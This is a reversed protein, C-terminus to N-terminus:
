QRAERKSKNTLPTPDASPDLFLLKQLRDGRHGGPLRTLRVASMAAPDAGLRVLGPKVRELADQYEQKTRAEWRLLVHISQGASSYIAVAPLPLQAMARIWLLADAKDSEVVMHRFDTLNGESRISWNGDANRKAVGDTPNSLYFVGEESRLRNVWGARSGIEYVRGCDTRGTFVAVKEGLRFVADLFDSSTVNAPDVPSRDSVDALELDGGSRALSVLDGPSFSARTVSTAMAGSGAAESRAYAYARTQNRQLDRPVVKGGAARVRREVEAMAQDKNIGLSRARLFADFTQDQKTKGDAWPLRDLYQIWRSWPDPRKAPISL